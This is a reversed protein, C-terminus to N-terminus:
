CMRIQDPPDSCDTFTARSSDYSIEEDRYNRNDKKQYDRFLDSNDKM